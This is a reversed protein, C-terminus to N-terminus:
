SVAFRFQSEGSIAGAADFRRESFKIQGDHTYLVVTSCRTGYEPSVIFPSSSIPEPVFPLHDGISIDAATRDALLHLLDTESVSDARLLERLRDRSRVLKPWPTDLAANSLGYVGPPLLRPPDGRNSVSVLQEGAGALLSFGAYQSGDIAEAYARPGEAVTVFDTVLAGRTLPAGDQQRDERYNTVAAFRGSRSIALWTGNAQRDRGALVAPEDPWWDAAAAARQHFEDRNAAVVLRYRPHAQWAFVILCM